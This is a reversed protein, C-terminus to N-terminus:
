GTLTTVTGAILLSVGLLGLVCVFSLEIAHKHPDVLGGRIAAIHLTCPIIYIIASGCIAGVLGVVVGADVLLITCITILGVFVLSMVDQLLVSDLSDATAPILIKGLAVLSERLGSFMLPYSAILSLGMALRAITFLIDDRSYNKLIVADSNRGFTQFGAVMSVGYLCACLGMATGCVKALSAPTHKKLERYYKCGNYHSLFAIAFSNALSFAPMGFEFWHSDPVDPLLSASDIHVGHFKGGEEYSGDLCRIVMVLVTYLVAVVAFGSSPALASFDKLLCLPLTPFISFMLCCAWRPAEIGLSPLVGTFIDSFFCAYAINNGFCVVAVVAVPVWRSNKGILAEWQGALDMQGSITCSRATLYMTYVCLGCFVVLIIFAPVYGTGALGNAVPLMGAPGLDAFMNVVFVGFTMTEQSTDITWRKRVVGGYEITQRRHLMRRGSALQAERSLTLGSDDRTVAQEGPDPTGPTGGTAPGFMEGWMCYLVSLIGFMAFAALMGIAAVSMGNYPEALVELERLDTQRSRELVEARRPQVQVFAIGDLEAAIDVETAHWSPASDAHPQVM